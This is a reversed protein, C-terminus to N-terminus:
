WRPTFPAPSAGRPAYTNEELDVAHGKLLKLVGGTLEDRPAAGVLLMVGAPGATKAMDALRTAWTVRETDDPADGFDVLVCRREPRVDEPLRSFVALDHSRLKRVVAQAHEAVADLEAEGSIRVVPGPFQGSIYDLAPKRKTGSAGFVLLNSWGSLPVRVDDGGASGLTIFPDSHRKGAHLARRFEMPTDIATEATREDIIGDLVLQSLSVALPITNGEQKRFWRIFADPGAGDTFKETRRRTLVEVAPVKSRGDAAPLLKQFLVAKLTSAVLATVDEPHEFVAMDLIRRIADEVSHASMTLLVTHGAEAAHLAELVAAGDRTEGVVIIERVDRVAAGIAEHTSGPGTVFEVDSRRPIVPLERADEIVTIRRRYRSTILNLVAALSTSKGSGVPGAFVYLGADVTAFRRVVDPLGLDDFRPPVSEPEQDGGARRVIDLARPYTIGTESKIRRAAEKAAHNKVM